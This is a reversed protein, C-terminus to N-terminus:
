RAGCLRAFVPRLREGSQGIEEPLVRAGGVVTMFNTDGIWRPVLHTHLHDAVGAGAPRGLNMGVNIGQPRYVETLALEGARTLEAMEVLEPHTLDALRAVHRRPVVMLHGPNYPFLNLIVFASLGHHVILAGAEGTEQAVCFVCADADSSRTVYALRWSAYLREM